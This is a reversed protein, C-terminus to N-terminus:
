ELTAKLDGGMALSALVRGEPIEKSAYILKLNAGSRSAEVLERVRINMEARDSFRWTKLIKEKGDAIAMSREMGTKGCHDYYIKLFHTADGAGLSISRVESGPDVYEKLLLKGGLHITYSDRGFKDSFSFLAVALVMLTLSRIVPANIQKNDM